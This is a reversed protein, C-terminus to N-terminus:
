AVGGLGLTAAFREPALLAARGVGAAAREIGSVRTSRQASAILRDLAHWGAFATARVALSADASPRVERYGRWFSEVRPRLRELKAAGREVIVEHTLDFDVFSSDGRDTVIDLVARYLWEGAFSGIDRAADALRFEEWDTIHLTGNSVLIQDLRLDCHSPVKVAGKESELLKELGERLATDGQLLGWVTMQGFSFEQFMEDSIGRLLKPSPLVPPVTELEVGHPDTVHVRAVARGTAHALEDDFAEDVMMRAGSEADEVCTFAVVRAEADSGLLEPRALADQPIRVGFEEFALMRSLREAPGAGPGTLRKAFIHRGSRTRGKWVDNRGPAAELTDRDFTGLGLRELLADVEPVSDLDAPVVRAEM